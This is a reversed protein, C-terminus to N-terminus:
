WSRKMLLCMIMFGNWCLGWGGGHQSIRWYAFAVEGTQIPFSQQTYRGWVALHERLKVRWALSLDGSVRKLVASHATLNLRSRNTEKRKIKSMDLTSCMRQLPPTAPKHKVTQVQHVRSHLTVTKWILEKSVSESLSCSDGDKIHVTVMTVPTKRLHYLGWKDTYVLNYFFASQNQETSIM